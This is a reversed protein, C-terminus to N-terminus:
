KSVSIQFEYPYGMSVLSISERLNKKEISLIKIGHKTAAVGRLKGIQVICKGQFALFSISDGFWVYVYCM